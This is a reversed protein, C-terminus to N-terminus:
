AKTGTIMDGLSLVEGSAVREDLALIGVSMLAEIVRYADEDIKPHLALLADRLENDPDVSGIYFNSGNASGFDAPRSLPVKERLVYATGVRAAVAWAQAGSQLVGRM